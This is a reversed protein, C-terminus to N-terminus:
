RIKLLNAKIKVKFINWFKLNKTFIFLKKKKKVYSNYLM